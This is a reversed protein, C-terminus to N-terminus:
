EGMGDALLLRERELFQEHTETTMMAVLKDVDREDTPNAFCGSLICDELIYLAKKAGKPSVWTCPARVEKVEGGDTFRFAGQLVMTIGDQLHVRGTVVAGAPMFIERVYVGPAFYHKVPLDIQPLQRAADELRLIAARNEADLEFKPAVVIPGINVRYAGDLFGVASRDGV